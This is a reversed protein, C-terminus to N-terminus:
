DPFTVLYLSSCVFVFSLLLWTPLLCWSSSALNCNPNQQLYIMPRSVADSIQVARSFIKEAAEFARIMCSRKWNCIVFFHPNLIISYRSLILDMTSLRSAIPSFM